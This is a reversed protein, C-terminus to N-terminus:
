FLLPRFGPAALAGAGVSPPLSLSEFPRPYPPRRDTTRRHCERLQIPEEVRNPGMGERRGVGHPLQYPGAKGERPARPAEALGLDPDEIRDAREGPRREQSSGLCRASM